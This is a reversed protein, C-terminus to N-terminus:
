LSRNIVNFSTKTQKVRKQGLGKKWIHDRKKVDNLAILSNQSIQTLTLVLGCSHAIM